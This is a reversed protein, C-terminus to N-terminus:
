LLIVEVIKFCDFINIEMFFFNGKKDLFCKNVMFIEVIDVIDIDIM